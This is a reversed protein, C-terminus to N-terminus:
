CSGELSVGVRPLSLAWGILSYCHSGVPFWPPRGLKRFLVLIHSPPLLQLLKLFRHLKRRKRCNEASPRKPHTRKPSGFNSAGLTKEQVRKTIRTDTHQTDQRHVRILSSSSCDESTEPLRYEKERREVIGSIGSSDLLM